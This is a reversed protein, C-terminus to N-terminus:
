LMIIMLCQCLHGHFYVYEMQLRYGTLGGTWLTIIKWHIICIMTCTWLGPLWLYYTFYIIRSVAWLFTSYLNLREECKIKIMEVRLLYFICIPCLWRKWATWLSLHQDSKFFFTDYVWRSISHAMRPIRHGLSVSMCNAILTRKKDVDMFICVYTNIEMCICCCLDLYWWKLMTFSGYVLLKIFLLCQDRTTKVISSDSNFNGSSKELRASM